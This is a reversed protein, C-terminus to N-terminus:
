QLMSMMLNTAARAIKAHIADLASVELRDSFDLIKVLILANDESWLDFPCRKNSAVGSGECLGVSEGATGM